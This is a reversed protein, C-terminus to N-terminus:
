RSARAWVVYLPDGYGGPSRDETVVDVFGGAADFYSRVLVVHQEDSAYLWAAVAKTPFCRNSFSVVFPAGPRLVRRVERFVRLPHVLYQVSVACMAGDFEADGFPLRGDRNVDHVVARGLQPNDAMEEANMGLGVVDAPFGEPLHTRWSSMLDLLRGGTPLVETYLRALAEIAGDDIHVVKRPLLYFEADSSEDERAYAAPSLLGDGRLSDDTMTPRDIRCM